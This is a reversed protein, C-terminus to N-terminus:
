RKEHRDPPSTKSDRSPRASRRASDRTEHGRLLRNRRRLERSLRRLRRQFGGAHDDLWQCPGNAPDLAGLVCITSEVTQLIQGDSVQLRQRGVENEPDFVAGRFSNLQEFVDSIRELLTDIAQADEQSLPVSPREAMDLLQDGWGKALRGLAIRYDAELDKISEPSQYEFYDPVTDFLEVLDTSVITATASM